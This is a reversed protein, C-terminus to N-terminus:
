RGSNAPAGTAPTPPVPAGGAIRLFGAVDTRLAACVEDLYAISGELNNAAIAQDFERRRRLIDRLLDRTAKHLKVRDSSGTAESWSKLGALLVPTVVAALAGVLILAPLGATALIPGGAAVAMVLGGLLTLRFARTGHSEIAETLYRIQGEMLDAVVWDGAARFAAQGQTHGVRLAVRARECRGAEAKERNERWTGAYDRTNLAFACFAAAAVALAQMVCLTVHVTQSAVFSKLTASQVVGAGSVATDAGYLVLGGVVAAICSSTIFGEILRRYAIQANRAASAAEERQEHTNRYDPDEAISAPLMPNGSM